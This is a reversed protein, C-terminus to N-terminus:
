VVPNWQSSERLRLRGMRLTPVATAVAGRPEGPTSSALCPGRGQASWRHTATPWAVQGCGLRLVPHAAMHQPFEPATNAWLSTSPGVWLVRSAEQRHRRRSWSCFAPSPATRLALSGLLWFLPPLPRTQCGAPAYLGQGLDSGAEESFRGRSRGLRKVEGSLWAQARRWGGEPPGLVALSRWSLSALRHWGWRGRRPRQELYAGPSAEEQERPCHEM